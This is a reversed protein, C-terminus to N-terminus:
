MLPRLNGSLQPNIGICTGSWNTSSMLDMPLAYSKSLGLLFTFTPTDRYPLNNIHLDLVDFDSSRLIDFTKLTTSTTNSAVAHAPSSAEPSEPLPLPSKPLASDGADGGGLGVVGGGSGM